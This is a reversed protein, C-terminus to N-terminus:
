KKLKIIKDAKIKAEQELFFRNVRPIVSLWKKIVTIIKEVNVKTKGLLKNINSIAREGEEKFEKQKKPKMSLFVDDLGDSLIEEIKKEREKEESSASRLTKSTRKVAEGKKEIPKAKEGEQEFSLAEKEISNEIKEIEASFDDDSLPQKEIGMGGQEIKRSLDEPMIKNSKLLKLPVAILQM